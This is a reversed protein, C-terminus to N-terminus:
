FLESRNNLCLHSNEHRPVVIDFPVGVVEAATIDMNSSSSYYKM